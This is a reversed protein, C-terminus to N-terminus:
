NALPNPRLQIHVVSGIKTEVFGVPDNGYNLWLGRGKWGANADDIRGDLGRHYLGLPYPVRVVTFSEKVPDFVILADSNAGTLIVRDRGLGLTNFRDVFISYHFDASGAAPGSGRLKPGPSAWYKFQESRPDFRGLHGSATGFWIVGDTAADIGIPSRGPPPLPYQTFTSSKPDFKVIKNQGALANTDAAGSQGIYTNARWVTGDLPSVTIGYGGGAVSSGTRPDISVFVKQARTATERPKEPDLLSPDFMGLGVSDGSTWLRGRSDFQLHNTGYATDIQVFAERKTDFYVLQRHHTGENWASPLGSARDAKAQVNVLVDRAWGPLDEIRERRTQAAIWVKGTADMTPVHPNAPNNYVIGRPPAASRTLVNTTPVKYSSVRHTKPNLAWLMDQGFDVGWVNGYSYLTPQRKDTSIEDHIYSDARGWQWETVVINREIGAPRPPAEPVEGAAIRTTWEALTRSFVARGLADATRGETANGMLAADWADARTRTHFVRSGFQHCRMCGLKMDTVWHEQNEFTSPLEYQPPPTYLSLWYSSPYIQAAERPESAATALLTLQNGLTAKVGTSDRLGYGRIWVDYTGPPLDPVLFRGQEDTVVIRRFPTPLSRTEAIVWVGAEGAHNANNLVTGGISHRDVQVAHTYAGNTLWIAGAALAAALIVAPVTSRRSMLASKRTPASHESGLALASTTATAGTGRIARKVLNRLRFRHQDYVTKQGIAHSIGLM